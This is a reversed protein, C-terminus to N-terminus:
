EDGEYVHKKCDKLSMTKADRDFIQENMEKLVQKM